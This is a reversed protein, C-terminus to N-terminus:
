IIIIIVLVFYIYNKGYINNTSTQIDPQKM